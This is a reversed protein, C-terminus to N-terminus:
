IIVVTCRPFQLTMLIFVISQHKVIFGDKGKGKIFVAYVLEANIMDVLDHQTNGSYM